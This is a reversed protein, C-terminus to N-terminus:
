DTLKGDCVLVIVYYDNNPTLVSPSSARYIRNVLYHDDFHSRALNVLM